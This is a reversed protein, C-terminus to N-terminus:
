TSQTAGVTDTVLELRVSSQWYADEESLGCAQLLQQATGCAYNTFERKLQDQKPGYWYNFVLQTTSKSDDLYELQVFRTEARGRWTKKFLPPLWNAPRENEEEIFHYLIPEKFRLVFLPAWDTPGLQCAFTIGAIKTETRAEPQHKTGPVFM